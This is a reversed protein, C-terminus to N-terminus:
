RARPSAGGVFRSRRHRASGAYALVAVLTADAVSLQGRIAEVHRPTLPEVRRRPPQSPKRVKVVPNSAIREEEVAASLMSQLVALTKRM